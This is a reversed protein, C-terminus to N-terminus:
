SLPSRALLQVATSLRKNFAESKGNIVNDATSGRHDNVNAKLRKAVAEIANTRRKTVALEKQFHRIIVFANSVTVDPAILQVLLREVAELRESPWDGLAKPKAAAQSLWLESAVAGAEVSSRPVFLPQEIRNVGLWRSTGGVMGLWGYSSRWFGVNVSRYQGAGGPGPPQYATISGAKLHEHLRLFLGVSTANDGSQQLLQRLRPAPRQHWYFLAGFVTVAGSAAWALELRETGLYGLCLALAVIAMLVAAAEVAHVLSSSPGILQKYVPGFHGEWSVDDPKRCYESVLDDLEIFTDASRGDQNRM